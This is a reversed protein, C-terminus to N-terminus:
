NLKWEKDPPLPAFHQGVIDETVGELSPPDWQPSNDRDILVARVGEYFDHGGMCWQSMCYEMELCEALNRMQAGKMLQRHTIKLSTPSMNALINAQQAGWKGGEGWLAAIIDEVTDRSFISEILDGQATLSFPTVKENGHFKDLLGRVSQLRDRPDLTLLHPCLAALNERLQPLAAVSIFHTAIGAHYVDWGRLQHGTLSLFMGLSQTLRPLFYSGGVDPFLGISTEPMAFLTRETAVRFPSHVSLGVGGGMTIGDIIAIYPKSLVNIMHNLTYEERFFDQALPLGAKGAETVARIDGGACFAKEGAGTPCVSSRALGRM